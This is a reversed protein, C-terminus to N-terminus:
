EDRSLYRFSLEFDVEAEAALWDDLEKGAAFGRRQARRYAAASILERRKELSPGAPRSFRFPDFHPRLM